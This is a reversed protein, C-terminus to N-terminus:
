SEERSFLNAYIIFYYLEKYINIKIINNTCPKKLNALTIAATIQNSFDALINSATIIKASEEETEIHLEVCDSDTNEDEEMGFGNSIILGSLLLNSLLFKKFNINM